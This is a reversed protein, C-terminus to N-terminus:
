LYTYIIHVYKSEQFMNKEEAIHAVFYNYNRYNVNYSVYMKSIRNKFQEEIELCHLECM